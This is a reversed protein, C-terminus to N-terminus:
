RLTSMEILTCITALFTPGPKDGRDFAQRYINFEGEHLLGSTAMQGLSQFFIIDRQAQDIGGFQESLEEYRSKMKASEPGLLFQRVNSLDLIM